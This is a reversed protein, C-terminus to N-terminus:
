TLLDNKEREKTVNTSIIIIIHLDDLCRKRDVTSDRCPVYKKSGVMMEVCLYICVCLICFFTM